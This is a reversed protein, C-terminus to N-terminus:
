APPQIYEAWCTFRCVNVLGQCLHQIHQLKRGLRITSALLKLQLGRDWVKQRFRNALMSTAGEVETRERVKQGNTPLREFFSEFEPAFLGSVFALGQRPKRKTFQVLPSQVSPKEIVFFGELHFRPVSLNLRAKRQLQPKNHLPPLEIIV